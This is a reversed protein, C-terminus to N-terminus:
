ATAPEVELAQVGLLLWRGEEDKVMNARERLVQVAVVSLVDSTTRIILLLVVGHSPVSDDHHSQM